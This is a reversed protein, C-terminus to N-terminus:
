ANDTSFFGTMAVLKGDDDYEGYSVGDGLVTGDAGCMDWKALSRHHHFIFEKIVFHGGPVQEHFQQMYALLEDFGRAQHLPDTYICRPSLAERYLARREEASKAGWSAAYTDWTKRLQKETM